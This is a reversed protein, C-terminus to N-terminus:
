KKGKSKRAWIIIDPTWLYENKWNRRTNKRVWKGVVKCEQANLQPCDVSDSFLFGMHEGLEEDSAGKWKDLNFNFEIPKGVKYPIKEKKLGKELLERSVPARKGFSPYLEKKMKQFDGASDEVILICLGDEALHSTIKKLTSVTLDKNRPSEYLTHLATVIDYECHCEADEITKPYVRGFHGSNEGEFNELLKRRQELKPEIFDVVAMIGMEKLKRALYLPKGWNGSGVNLIRIEKKKKLLPIFGPDYSSLQNLIGDVDFADEDTIQLFATVGKMYKKENEREV